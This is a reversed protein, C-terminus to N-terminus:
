HMHTLCRLMDWTNLQPMRTILEVVCNAGVAACAIFAAILTLYTAAVAILESRHQDDAAVTGVGSPTSEDNLLPSQSIQSRSNSNAATFFGVKIKDDNGHQNRPQTQM